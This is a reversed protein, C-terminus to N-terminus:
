EPPWAQNDLLTEVDALLEDAKGQYAAFIARDVKRRSKARLYLRVAERIFASRGRAQAEEDADIRELLDEDISVQVPRTAM